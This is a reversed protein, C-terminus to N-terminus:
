AYDVVPLSLLVIAEPVTKGVPLILTSTCEAYDVVPLSLLVPADLM